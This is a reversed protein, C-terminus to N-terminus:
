AEGEVLDNFKDALASAGEVGAAFGAALIAWLFGVVGGPSARAIMAGIVLYGLYKKM